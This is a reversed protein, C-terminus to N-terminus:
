KELRLSDARKLLKGKAEVGTPLRPKLTYEFRHEDRITFPVLFESVFDLPFVEYVPPSVDEMQSLIEYGQKHLTLARTGYFDFPVSVPTEGAVQGDLFLRAAPPDSIVTIRREVCGVAMVVLAIATLVSCRLRFDAAVPLRPM